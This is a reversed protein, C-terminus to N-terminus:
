KNKVVVVQASRLPFLQGAIKYEYGKRIVDKIHEHPLNPDPEAAIPEHRDYDVPQGTDVQMMTIGLISLAQLLIDELDSYTQLWNSLQEQCSLTKYSIKLEIVLYEARPKIDNIGDFTPLLKKEIFHLWQKQLKEVYDRWVRMSKYRADGAEKLKKLLVQKAKSEDTQSRLLEVLDSMRLRSLHESPLNSKYRNILELSKQSHDLMQNILQLNEYRSQLSKYLSLTGIKFYKMLEDCQKIRDSCKCIAFSVSKYLMETKSQWLKAKDIYYQCEQEDERLSQADQKLIERILENFQSISMEELNRLRENVLDFESNQKNYNELLQKYSQHLKNVQDVIDIMPISLQPLPKYKATIKLSKEVILDISSESQVIDGDWGIFEWDPFAIAKINVLKGEAYKGNGEVRGGELPDIDIELIHKPIIGSSSQSELKSETEPENDILDDNIETPDPFLDTFVELLGEFSFDLENDILDDSVETISPFLSPLEKELEEFLNRMRKFRQNLDPNTAQLYWASTCINPFWYAVTKAFAYTDITDRSKSASDADTIEPPLFDGCDKIADQNGQLIFPAYGFGSLYVKNDKLLFSKPNIQGHIIRKNNVIHLLESAESLYKLILELEFDKSLDLLSGCFEPCVIVLHLDNNSIVQEPPILGERRINKLADFYDFAEKIQGKPYNNLLVQVTHAKQTTLNVAEIM